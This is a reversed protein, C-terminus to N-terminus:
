YSQIIFGEDLDYGLKILQTHYQIHEEIAEKYEDEDEYDERNVDPSYDKLYSELDEYENFDCCLGIVDLEINEGTGDELEELYDFLARKGDYSFQNERGANRFADVFSSFTIEQIM